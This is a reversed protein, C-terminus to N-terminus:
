SAMLQYKVTITNVIEVTKRSLIRKKQGEAATDFEAEEPHTKLEDYMAVM